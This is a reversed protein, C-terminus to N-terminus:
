HRHRLTSSSKLGFVAVSGDTPVYVKGDAVLPTILAGAISGVGAGPEWNGAQGSFLTKLSLADFAFLNVPGGGGTQNDQIVWAVATGANTGNSSVIPQSGGNRCEFCGVGSTSAALTLSTTSPNFLYANLPGSGYLVYSKGTGDQFFAPGGWIGGGTNAHWVAGNDNTVQGGLNDRNLLYKDGTKGGAVVIHPFATSLGDPLLMVGASALDQDGNSQNAENAPTFYSGNAINLTGPLKLVSMSFDTTGNWPGNGTAFYVNGAADAAPGYGSMWIAGLFYNSGVNANTLNVVGGTPALSSASFGLIWGHVAGANYDCHSGLGVYINGNAELLATRSFNWKADTTATGGSALMVSASVETPTAVDSGNQLSIAHLRIHATGSEKTAVTLYMVDKARDIVGTSAIGIDPDVDRCGTDNWNQQVIGAGPNTFSRQWVVNLTQDDYAYVQDTMTSVIVLNHPTGGVSENSAFLPQAYVKGFAASGNADTLNTLLGFNSSAVNTTTLATEAQYWGQRANNQHFTVNDSIHSTSPANITVSLTQTHSASDSVTLTCAGAASPTVTLTAGSITGSAFGACGSAGYPPTGGSITASQAVATPSSFALSNPSLSIPSAAGQVTVAVTASLGSADAITLVCQGAGAPAVSISSGNVTANAVNTCGSVSFPALGGSVTVTQAAASTSAFTLGNPASTTLPPATGVRIKAMMGADEHSVIHCHLLFTGVITPDTFDMVLTVSGPGNANAAPVNINDLTQGIESQEIATGGVVAKVLFHIQHVHFTHVQSSNNVIQWQEMTGSQAYLLPAGGPDYSQGDIQNQTSYVVQQQRLAATGAFRRMANAVNRAHSFARVAKPSIRDRHRANDTISSNSSLTAIVAGPMALGASGSDFCNTRVYATTGAAPGKVIFEIRSSPPVVYHSVTLPTSGAMALPVGDLAVVQMQANDVQLDMYTDSGANVLRWFQQEGPRIGISPNTQGNLTWNRSPAEPSGAVCHTSAAPRVFTRYRIDSTVYPNRTSASSKGRVAVSMAGSGMRMPFRRRGAADTAHAMAWGMARVQAPDAAPLPQGSPMVDRAILIREPLNAVQPAYQSVGDVILAGSMGSLNQREAEGHAHSHYWYLGSPHNTPIAIQYHLSQGPMALMDISDDAPANPNVHLGHYHLNMDNLYGAGAPPQPLSNSLNVILTDGPLVRLTPPVSSGNYTLQPAGSASQSAVVNFVLQGNRSRLQPPDALSGAPGSAIPISPYTGGQPCVTRYPHNAPLRNQLGWKCALYGEVQSAEAATLYRNFFLMEGLQGNYQYSTQGNQSTAGIALPYNGTVTAGPGTGAALTNGNKRLTQARSTVSGAASWVAPGSPLDYPSLRGAEKNNLDFNSVGAESLRLNFRPDALYAGSWVISSQQQTASQNAVVFVTSENFLNTSFAANSGLLYAATNFALSGKNNIGAVVYTPQLKATAQTVSNNKGSLDNLASVSGNAVTVGAAVSPDFWAQLGSIQTPTFTQPAVSAPASAISFGGIQHRDDLGGTSGTFGVYVSAPVAPQGNVGAIVHSYYPVFGNGDHRDISVTLQGSPLLVASITPANAPRATAAPQDLSFPLSVPTGSANTYGGIYQYGSSAAGRVAVTEPVTATGGGNRGETATSFNGYEDFAIGVYANALGANTTGNVTGNAYGLSGGIAGLATPLPKSADSLFLVIGDAGPTSGNFAYDTFTISLGNATSLPAETAVMGSQYTTPQTLQLTGQGNADVNAKAGCAPISSPPTAGNGATLCASGIAEWASPQTFSESFADGALTVFPKVGAARGRGSAADGVGASSGLAFALLTVCALAKCSGAVLRM